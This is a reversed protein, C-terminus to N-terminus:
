SGYVPDSGFFDSSYEANVAESGAASGEIPGLAGFCRVLMAEATTGGPQAAMSQLDEKCSIIEQFIDQLSSSNNGTQTPAVINGPSFVGDLAESAMLEALIGNMGVRLAGERAEASTAAEYAAKAQDYKEKAALITSSNLNPM